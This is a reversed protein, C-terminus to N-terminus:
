PRSPRRRRGSRRSAAGRASALDDVWSLAEAASPLRESEFRLRDARDACRHDVLLGKVADAIGEATATWPDLATGIGLAEVRRANHPQDAGMPLVVSPVGHAAAGIVTGSGGHSVVVDADRLVAGHPVFSALSVNPPVDGLWSPDLHRGLTALVSVPLAGLGTLIRTLLDGSEAVFVTGLTVYVFPRGDDPRLPLPADPGGELAAPRVARATGPLPHSPDRLSPPFPALVLDRDLMALGPDAPLGHDLRLRHLPEALLARRAFGGAALVLVRVHPIGAREAAVTSGYDVEDAVVVDPRQEALLAVLDGARRSASVGAFGDRLVRDERDPDEPALPHGVSPHPVDPGVARAAFHDATVVPVMSPRCAFAVTHGSARAAGALPALPDYHGQGGVFTFLIRM